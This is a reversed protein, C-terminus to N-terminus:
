IFIFYKIKCDTPIEQKKCSISNDGLFQSERANRREAVEPLEVEWEGREKGGHGGVVVVDGAFSATSLTSPELQAALPLATM